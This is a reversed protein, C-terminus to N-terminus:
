LLLNLRPVQKISGFFNSVLVHLLTRREDGQSFEERPFSASSVLESLIAIPFM